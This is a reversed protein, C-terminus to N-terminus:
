NKFNIQEKLRVKDMRSQKQAIEKKGLYKAMKHNFDEKMWKLTRSDEVNDYDYGMKKEFRHYVNLKSNKQTYKPPTLIYAKTEKRREKKATRQGKHLKVVTDSM